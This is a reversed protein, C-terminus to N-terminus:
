GSGNALWVKAQNVSIHIICIGILVIIEDFNVTGTLKQLDHQQKSAPFLGLIIGGLNSPLQSLQGLLFAHTSGSV